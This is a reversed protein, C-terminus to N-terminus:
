PTVGPEVVYNGFFYRNTDDDAGGTVMVDYAFSHTATAGSTTPLDANDDKTVLLEVVGGEADIIEFRSGNANAAMGVEVLATGGPAEAVAMAFEWGTIDVLRGETRFTFTVRLDERRVLTFDQRIAEIM